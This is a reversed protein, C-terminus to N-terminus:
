FAYERPAPIYKLTSASTAHRLEQTQDRAGGLFLMCNLGL